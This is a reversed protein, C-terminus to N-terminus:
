ITLIAQTGTFVQAAAYTNNVGTNYGTWAKIASSRTPVSGASWIFSLTETSEDVSM